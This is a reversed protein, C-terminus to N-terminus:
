SAAAIRFVPFDPAIRGALPLGIKTLWGVFGNFVGDFGTPKVYRRTM